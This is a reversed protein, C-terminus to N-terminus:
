FKTNSKSKLDISALQDRYRPTWQKGDPRTIRAFCDPLFRGCSKYRYVRTSTRNTLHTESMEQGSRCGLVIRFLKTEPAVGRSPRGRLGNRDEFVHILHEFPSVFTLFCGPLRDEREYRPLCEHHEPLEVLSPVPVVLELRRRLYWELQHSAAKCKRDVYLVQAIDAGAATGM